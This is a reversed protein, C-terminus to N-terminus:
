EEILVELENKFNLIQLFDTKIMECEESAEACRQQAVQTEDEMQAQRARLSGLEDELERLQATTRSIELERDSAM